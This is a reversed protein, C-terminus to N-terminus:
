SVLIGTPRITIGGAYGDKRLHGLVVTAPVEPDVDLMAAIADKYPDLKSSAVERVYRPPETLELLRIVTTRSMELRRAITAKTLHERRHLRHIEAWDHVDYV